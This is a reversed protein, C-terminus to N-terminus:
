QSSQARKIWFVIHAWGDLLKAGQAMWTVLTLGLFVQIMTAHMLLLNVVLKGLEDHM